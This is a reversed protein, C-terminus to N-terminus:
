GPSTACNNCKYRDTSDVVNESVMESKGCVRCKVEVFNVPRNRMTPPYKALKKDIAVDEQHMKAEPMDTFKNVRKTKTNFKRSTDKIPDDVRPTETEEEDSILSSLLSILEKIKKPDKSLKDLDM